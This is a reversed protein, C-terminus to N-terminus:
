EFFEMIEKYVKEVMADINVSSAKRKKIVDEVKCSTMGLISANGVEITFFNTASAPEVGRNPRVKINGLDKKNGIGSDIAIIKKNDSAFTVELCKEIYNKGDIPEEITGFVTFGAEKLKSGLRPAFSDLPYKPSGICLFVLDEKNCLIRKIDGIIRM